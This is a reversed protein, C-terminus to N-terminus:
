RQAATAGVAKLYNMRQEGIRHFPQPQYEDGRPSLSQRKVGLERSMASINGGLREWAEIFQEDSIGKIAAM